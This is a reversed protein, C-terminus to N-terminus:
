WVRIFLTEQDGDVLVLREAVVADATSPPAPGTSHVTVGGSEITVNVTRHDAIGLAENLDDGDVDFFEATSTENLVGPERVDDVLVDEVLLAAGRDAAVMSSGTDTDFPQFMGPVFSFVFGITILFVTIGALFDVATQGRNGKADSRAVGFM